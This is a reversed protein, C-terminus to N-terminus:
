PDSETGRERRARGASKGHKGSGTAAFIMPRFISLFAESAPSLPREALHLVGIERTIAPRPPRVVFSRREAPPLAAAPVISVGLGSSM